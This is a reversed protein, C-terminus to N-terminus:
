MPSMTAPRPAPCSRSPWSAPLPHGTWDNLFAARYSQYGPPLQLDLDLTANILNGSPGFESVFPDGGWWVLYGGNPLLQANGEYPVQLGGPTTTHLFQHRLSATNAQQDLSLVLGRAQKEPSPAGEADDFISVGSGDPLPRVDHQWEFNTDTGMRFSGGHAGTGTPNGSLKWVIRGGPRDRSIRYAAWTNRSSVLLDQRYPGADGPWLDISNLSRSRAV